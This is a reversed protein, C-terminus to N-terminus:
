EEVAEFVVQNNIEVSQDQCFLRKPLVIQVYYLFMDRLYYHLKQGDTKASFIMKAVKYPVFGYIVYIIGRLYQNLFLILGNFFVFMVIAIGVGSVVLSIDIGNTLPIWLIKRFKSREEFMSKYNYCVKM